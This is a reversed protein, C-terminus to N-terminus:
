RVRSSRPPPEGPAPAAPTPAPPQLAAPEPRASELVIQADAAPASAPEESATSEVAVRAHRAIAEAVEARTTALAAGSEQELPANSRREYRWRRRREQYVPDELADRAAVLQVHVARLDANDALVVGHAARLRTREAWAPELGFHWLHAIFGAAVLVPLARWLREVLLPHPETWRTSELAARPFAGARGRLVRAYDKAPDNV